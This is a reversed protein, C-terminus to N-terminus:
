IGRLLVEIYVLTEMRIKRTKCFKKCQIRKKSMFIWQERKNTIFNQYYRWYFIVMVLILLRQANNTIKPMIAVIM